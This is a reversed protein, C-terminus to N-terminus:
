GKVAYMVRELRKRKPAKEVDPLRTKLVALFRERFDDRIVPMAREAYMPLQNVPSHLLQEMLLAFADEAYLPIACLQVLINVAHDKTIVSGKEAADIIATLSNYIFAPDSAAMADLAAMSGWQLRNNKSKLLKLFDSGHDAILEPAIAGIKYLVKICDSQICKDTHSLLAVLQRIGDKDQEAVLDRALEQNPIEDKRDLSTALKTIVDM